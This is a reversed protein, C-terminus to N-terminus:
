YRRFRAFFPHFPKWLYMLPRFGSDHLELLTYATAILLMPYIAILYDLMLIHLAPSSLFQAALVFVNLEPSLVNIRFVLTIVIFVTLPLFAFVIYLGWNELQSDCRICKLDYSYASVTYGDVCQGCLTGQRKLSTCPTPAHHYHKDFTTSPTSNVVKFICSGVVPLVEGQSTHELTLCSTGFVLLLNTDTDCLVIGHLDSGCHCLQTQEDWVFWVNTEACVQGNNSVSLPPPEKSENYKQHEGMREVSSNISQRRENASVPVLFLLQLVFLLTVTNKM